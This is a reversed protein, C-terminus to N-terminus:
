ILWVRVWADACVCAWAWVWVCASLDGVTADREDDTAGLGHVCCVGLVCLECSRVCARMCTRRAHVHTRGSFVCVCVCM